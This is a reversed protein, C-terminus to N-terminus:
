QKGRKDLPSPTSLDKVQAVHSPKYGAEKFMKFFFPNKEQEEPTINFVENPEDYHVESL